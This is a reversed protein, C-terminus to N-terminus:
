TPSRRQYPAMTYGAIDIPEGTKVLCQGFQQIEPPFTDMWKDKLLYIHESALVEAACRPCRVFGVKKQPEGPPLCPPTGERDFPTCNLLAPNVACLIYANWYHAIFGAHGLTQLEELRQIKPPHRTLSFVSKPLSLCSFLAILLLFAYIRKLSVGKLGEAFLLVAVWASVYVFTFYRLNVNYRYVWYSTVLLVFGVIANVLFFYFWRPAMLDNKLKGSLMLYAMYGLLVFVLIAHVSLNPQNNQFTVTRVLAVALRNLVKSIQELTGFAGYKSVPTAHEKAYRIFLLSLGSITLVNFSDLSVWAIMRAKPELSDKISTYVYKLGILSLLFIPLISLDSVWLSIFLSAISLSILLQRTVPKIEKSDTLKNLMVLALGIFAFQTGYPQAILLLARFPYLPLFWVFAFIIKSVTHRFLSALCIFALGLLFYQVYSVAEVVSIPLLSLLFHSLVPVLSGLRNQGWYYLDDPLKLHYAMLIHVAHDSDLSPALYAAFSRFSLLFAVIAFPVLLFTNRFRINRSMQRWKRWQWRTLVPM